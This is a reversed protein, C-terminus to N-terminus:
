SPRCVSRASRIRRRKFGDSVRPEGIEVEPPSAGLSAAMTAISDRLRTAHAGDLSPAVGMHWRGRELEDLSYNEIDPLSRVLVRAIVDGFVPVASAGHVAPLWLVDDERGEIRDLALLPSGCECPASRPVLVDNLRYRIVPQSTRYLDTILPVFRTRGVDLWEREFLVYEEHLHITGCVCTSGLFGETAQYIQEVQVGFGREIAQRDIVDLVEAVSIVRQPRIALRNERVTRATTSLVHAPAVLITPAFEEVARLVEDFPRILDFFRFRVPGAGVTEYLANNARLLLAVRLPKWELLPLLKALMVGAWRSRESASAIFVGRSGSTGTSFGVAYGRLTARFDRSAEADEAIQTAERLEIGATNIVDFHAMWDPKAILPWREFPESAHPAYFVSRPMVERRLIELRRQQHAFLEERSSLRSLRRAEAFASVTRVFGLPSVSVAAL